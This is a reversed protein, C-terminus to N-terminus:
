EREDRAREMGARPFWKQGGAGEAGKSGGQDRKPSYPDARVINGNTGGQTEVSM